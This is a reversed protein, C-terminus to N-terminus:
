AVKERHVRWGESTLAFYRHGGNRREVLLARRSSRAVSRRVEREGYRTLKGAIERYAAFGDDALEVVVALVEEDGALKGTRNPPNV